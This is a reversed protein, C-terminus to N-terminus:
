SLKTTRTSDQYFIIPMTSKFASQLFTQLNLVESFMASAISIM